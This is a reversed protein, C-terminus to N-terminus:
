EFYEYKRLLYYEIENCFINFWNFDFIIRYNDNTLSIVVNPLREEFHQKAM